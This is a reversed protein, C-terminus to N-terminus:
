RGFLTNTLATYDYTGDQLKPANETIFKLDAESVVDMKKPDASAGNKNLLKFGSLIEDKTDTDGYLSIMYDKFGEYKIETDSGGWKKMIAKIDVAAYDHGLSYLCAKFESYDLSKNGDLDYSTFQKNIEEMQKQTVGRLKKTSIEDQIQNRKRELFALFQGWQVQVDKFSMLTYPNSLVKGEAMRQGLTQMQPLSKGEEKEASALKATLDSVQEELTRKSAAVKDKADQLTKIFATALDAFEKCLKDNVRQAELESKYDKGRQTQADKVQQLHEDLQEPTVKTYVLMDAVGVDNGHQFM